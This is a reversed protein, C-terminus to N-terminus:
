EVPKVYIIDEERVEFLTKDKIEEILYSPYDEELYQLPKVILPHTTWDWNLKIEVIKKTYKELLKLNEM